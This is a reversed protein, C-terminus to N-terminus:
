ASAGSSRRTRRGRRLPARGGRPRRRPRRHDGRGGGPTYAPSLEELTTTARPASTSSTAPRGPRRPQARADLGLMCRPTPARARRCTCCATTPWSSGAPTSRSSSAAACRRRSSGRASSRTPRRDPQRRHHVRWTPRQRHRHVLRHRRLPRVVQAARVLDALPLRALLQRHQQHRDGRADHAADAYCDENTARSSALGAIADPGHTPRSGASSPPSATSRRKGPPSGSARRGRPDAARHAARALALVPPRLPGQPLHPGRQRPRRARALDVHRPWPPRPDGAPLRRRLLRLDDNRDSRVRLDGRM